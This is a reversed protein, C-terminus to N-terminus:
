FAKKGNELSQQIFAKKLDEVWEKDGFEKLNRTLWDVQWDTIHGQRSLLDVVAARCQAGTMPYEHSLELLKQYGRSSAPHYWEKSFYRADKYLSFALIGAGLSAVYVFVGFLVIDKDDFRTTIFYGFPLLALAVGICIPILRYDQRLLRKKKEEWDIMFPNEM